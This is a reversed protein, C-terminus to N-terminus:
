MVGGSEPLFLDHRLGNEHTLCPEWVGPVPLTRGALPSQPCTIVLMQSQELLCLPPFPSVGHSKISNVTECTVLLPQHFQGAMRGHLEGSFQYASQIVTQNVIYGNPQSCLVHVLLSLPLKLFQCHPKRISHSASYRVLNCGVQSQSPQHDSWISDM